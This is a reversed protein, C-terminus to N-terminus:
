RPADRATGNVASAPPATLPGTQKPFERGPNDGFYLDSCASLALLLILAGARGAMGGLVSPSRYSM